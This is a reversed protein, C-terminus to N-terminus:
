IFLLLGFSMWQWELGDENINRWAALIDLCSNSLPLSTFWFSMWQWECGGEDQKWSSIVQYPNM